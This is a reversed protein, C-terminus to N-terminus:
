INCVGDQCAISEFQIVAHNIKFQEELLHQLKESIETTKSVPMDEIQIHGEFVTNNEDLRWVHIHHVGKVEDISGLSSCVEDIDTDAPTSQMFISISEKLVSYSSKLIVVNILVTMIPDVWYAGTFRIVIGSVIVAVSSLTDSLLHLYSSKINMSENAGKKLLLISFLNGLLGIVAVIIVINGMVPSRSTFRKVAEVILFVAIGTLSASNIFASLINARKYGYTRKKDKPKESIRIAAYSLIISVTDSLNHFADSVLSLSGSLLGGIIESLAIIFNFAIVFLLRSKSINSIDHEHHHGSHEHHGIHEHQGSQEQQRSQDQQENYKQEAM